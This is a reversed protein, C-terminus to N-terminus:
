LANPDDSVADILDNGDIIQYNGKEISNVPRGCEDMLFRNKDEVEYFGMKPNYEHFVKKFSSIYVTKGSNTVATFTKDKRVIM